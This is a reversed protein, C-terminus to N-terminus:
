LGEKDSQHLLESLIMARQAAATAMAPSTSPKGSGHPAVDGSCDGLGAAARTRWGIAVSTHTGHVM